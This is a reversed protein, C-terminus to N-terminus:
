KKLQVITSLLNATSKPLLAIVANNSSDVVRYMNTNEQVTFRMNPFQMSFLNLLFNDGNTYTSVQEKPKNFFLVSSVTLYNSYISNGDEDFRTAGTISYILKVADGVKYKKNDFIYGIM